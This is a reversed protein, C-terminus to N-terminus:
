SAVASDLASPACTKRDSLRIGLGDTGSDPALDAAHDCTPLRAQPLRNLEDADTVVEARGVITVTWAQEGQRELNDAQFAVIDGRAARDFKAGDTTRFLVNAGVM